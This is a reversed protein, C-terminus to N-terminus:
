QRVEISGNNLEVFCLVMSGYLWAKIRFLSYCKSDINEIIFKTMDTNLGILNSFQVPQPSSSDGWEGM